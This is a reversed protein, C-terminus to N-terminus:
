ILIEFIAATLTTKGAKRCIHQRHFDVTRCSIQLADAVAKISASQCSLLLVETERRTLRFRNLRRALAVTM